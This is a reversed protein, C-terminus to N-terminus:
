DLKLEKDIALLLQGAEEYSKLLSARNIQASKIRMNITNFLEVEGYSDTLKDEIASQLKGLEWRQQKRFIDKKSRFVM